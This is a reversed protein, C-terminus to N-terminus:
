APSFILNLHVPTSPLPLILQGNSRSLDFEQTQNGFSLKLQAPLGQSDGEPTIQHAWVKLEQASTPPLEFMLSRLTSFKAIDETASEIQQQSETYTLRVTASPSQGVATMTLYADDNKHAEKRLEVVFRPKFVGRRVMAMTAMLVLLGMLLVSAQWWFGQWIVLGHLFLSSVFLLYIGTVLWPHKLFPYIVDSVQDAKHRSAILLLVPFVGAFLPAAMVGGLSILSTFSGTGTLVLWETLLFVFLVPTVSLYFRARKRKPSTALTNFREYVLNFLGLSYHVSGIGMALVIYLTGLVHVSPGVIEALPELVTGSQGVLRQPAIAGGMGITWLCYLTVVTALGAMSGSVLSRTSPDRRLVLKASNAVSIHGAFIFLIVGFVLELLSPDFPTGGVFPMNTYFLNQYKLQTFALGTLLLILSLNITNLILASALTSSFSGSRLFYLGILFLLAIWIPAPVNLAAALASGVGIYFSLLTVFCFLATVFSFIVSGAQGLYDHVVQGIFASGYRIAGNRAVAEAMYAITLVNVLGLILLLVVGVLPGLKALAIPLALIGSGLTGTITSIFTIWFPSLREIRGELASLGWRLREVPKVQAVYITQLPESYLRQYAEQVLEDDLGLAARIGPVSQESFEYKQSMMQALAARIRANDPVLSGWQPAYRELEQITPQGAQDRGEALAELFARERGQATEEAAFLVMAQRSQSVLRGTRSDIAFLLTSAQRGPVGGLLAERSLFSFEDLM